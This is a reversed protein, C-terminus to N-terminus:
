FLGVAEGRGPGSGESPHPRDCPRLAGADSRASGPESGMIADLIVDRVGLLLLVPPRPTALTM